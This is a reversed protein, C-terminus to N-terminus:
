FRPTTWARPAAIMSLTSTACTAKSQSFLQLAQCPTSPARNASRKALATHSKSTLAHAFPAAKASKSRHFFNTPHKSHSVPHPPSESKYHRCKSSASSAPNARNSHQPSPLYAPLPCVFLQFVCTFHTASNVSQNVSSTKSIHSCRSRICITALIPADHEYAEDFFHMTRRRNVRLFLGLSVTNSMESLVLSSSLSSVVLIPALFGGMFKNVYVTIQRM